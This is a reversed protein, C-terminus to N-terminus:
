YKFNLEFLLKTSIIEFNLFHNMENEVHILIHM